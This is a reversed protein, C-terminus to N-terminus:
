PHEGTAKAIAQEMRQVQVTCGFMPKLLAVAFRLESLLAPASAVLLANKEADEYTIPGSKTHEMVAILPELGGAVCAIM